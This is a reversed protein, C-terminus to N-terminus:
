PAASTRTLGWLRAGRSRAVTRVELGASRAMGRLGSREEEELVIMYGRDRISELWGAVLPGDDPCSRRTCVM